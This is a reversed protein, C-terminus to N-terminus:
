TPNEGVTTLCYKEKISNTRSTKVPRSHVRGIIGSKNSSKTVCDALIAVKGDCSHPVKKYITSFSDLLEGM